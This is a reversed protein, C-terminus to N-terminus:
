RGPWVTIDSFDLVAQPTKVLERLIPFPTSGGPVTITIPAHARNLAATLRDRLWTAIAADSADEILTIDPM